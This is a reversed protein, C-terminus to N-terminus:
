TSRHLSDMQEQCPSPVILNAKVVKRTSATHARCRGTPLVDTFVYDWPLGALVFGTENADNTFDDFVPELIISHPDDEDYHGTGIHRLLYTLNVIGSLVTHRGKLGDNFKDTLVPRQYMDLNIISADVPAPGTMWIPFHRDAAIRCIALKLFTLM